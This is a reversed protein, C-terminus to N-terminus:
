MMKMEEDDDMIVNDDEKIMLTIKIMIMASKELDNEKNKEYNFYIEPWLTHGYKKHLQLVNMRKQISLIPAPIFM